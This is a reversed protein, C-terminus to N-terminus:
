WEVEKRRHLCLRHLFLLLGSPAFFNPSFQTSCLSFLFLSPPPAPPMTLQFEHHCQFMGARTLWVLSLSVFVLIRMMTTQICQEIKIQKSHKQKKTLESSLKRLSCVRSHAMQLQQFMGVCIMPIIIVALCEAINSEPRCNCIVM